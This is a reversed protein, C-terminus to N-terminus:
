RISVGFGFTWVVGDEGPNFIVAVEPRLTFRGSTRVGFGGHVAILTECGDCTPILFRVAPNFDFHENIPVTMLLAPHIQWSRTTDVEDGFAFGVPVAVALREPVLSFKPGFAITNFGFSETEIEITQTRNYGATVNVRSTVGVSARAGFENSIHTTDGDESLFVPSVTPTVEVQGPRLM